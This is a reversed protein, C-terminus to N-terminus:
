RAPGRGRPARRIRAPSSATAVAPRRPRARSGARRMVGPSEGARIYDELARRHAAFAIRRPLRDLPFWRAEIADDGPSLRGGDIRATYLVLVARVRPDDHGAYVGFLGTLRAKLGTEERLERVACRTPTEGYEMFGAPLCWARARPPWRRKVMLVGRAEAVIVGAAPAPNRYFIFGCRPCTPRPHGRDDRRVLATGCQPCFRPRSPVSM